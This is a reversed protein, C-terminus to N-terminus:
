SLKLPWKINVYIIAFATIQPPIKPGKVLLHGDWFMKIIAFNSFLYYQFPGRAFFVWLIGTESIAFVHTDKHLVSLFPCRCGFFQHLSSISVLLTLLGNNWERKKGRRHGFIRRRIHQQSNLSVELMWVMLVCNSASIVSQLFFTHFISVQKHIKCWIM